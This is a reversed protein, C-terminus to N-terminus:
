IYLFISESHLSHSKIRIKAPSKLVVCIFCGNYGLLLARRTMMAATMMIMALAVANQVEAVALGLGTREYITAVGVAVAGDGNGVDGHDHVADEAQGVSAAVRGAAGVGVAVVVDGDGVDAHNNILYQPCLRM